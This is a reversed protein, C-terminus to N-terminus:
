RTGTWEIIVQNAPGKLIPTQERGYLRRAMYPVEEQLHAQLEKFTIRKDKNRDAEGRLGLDGARPNQQVSSQDM